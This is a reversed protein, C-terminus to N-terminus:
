KGKLQNVIKNGDISYEGMRRKFGQRLFDLNERSLTLYYEKASELNDEAEKDEDDLVPVEVKELASYDFDILKIFSEIKDMTYPLRDLIEPYNIKCDRILSAYETIDLPIKIDETNAIIVLAEYKNMEGLLWCGAETWGLEKMAFYRHNGNVIHYKKDEPDIRIAILETQGNVKLSKLLKSYEEKGKEDELFNVKPNEPNPNLESLNIKKFEGKIENM